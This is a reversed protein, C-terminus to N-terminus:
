FRYNLLLKKVSMFYFVLLLLVVNKPGSNYAIPFCTKHNMSLVGQPQIIVTKWLVTYILFMLHFVTSLQINIGTETGNTDLCYDTPLPRGFNWYAIDFSKWYAIDFCISFFFCATVPCYYLIIFNTTIHPTHRNYIEECNLLTKDVAFM